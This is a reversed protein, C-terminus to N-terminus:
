FFSNLIIIHSTLDDSPQHEAEHKNILHIVLPSPLDFWRCKLPSVLARVEMNTFVSPNLQSSHQSPPLSSTWLVSITRFGAPVLSILDFCDVSVSGCSSFFVNDYIRDLSINPFYRMSKELVEKVFKPKPM